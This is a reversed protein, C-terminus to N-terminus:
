CLLGRDTRLSNQNGNRSDVKEVDNLKRKEGFWWSTKSERLADELERREIGRADLLSRPFHKQLFSRLRDITSEEEAPTIQFLNLADSSDWYHPEHLKLALRRGTMKSAKLGAQKLGSLFEVTEIGM